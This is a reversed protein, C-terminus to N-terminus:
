VKKVSWVKCEVEKGMGCDVTCQYPLLPFSYLVSFQKFLENRLFHKVHRCEPERTADQKKRVSSVWFFYGSTLM